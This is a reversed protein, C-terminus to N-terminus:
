QNFSFLFLAYMAKSSNFFQTVMLALYSLLLNQFFLYNGKNKDGSSSSSSEGNDM